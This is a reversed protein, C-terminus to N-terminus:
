QALFDKSIESEKIMEITGLKDIKEHLQILVELIQIININIELLRSHVEKYVIIDKHANFLNYVLWEIFVLKVIKVFFFIQRATIQM